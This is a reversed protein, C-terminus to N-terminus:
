DGSGELDRFALRARDVDVYVQLVKDLNTLRLVDNVVGKVACLKVDGGRKKMRSHVRLLVGIGYSSLYDLLTCDVIIKGIGADVLAQLEEVFQQATQSNLGGDARLILVDRDIEHAYFEM